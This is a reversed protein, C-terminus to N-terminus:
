GGLPTLKTTVKQTLPVSMGAAPIEVTSQQSMTTHGGLFVGDQGVFSTGSMTGSGKMAVETGNSMGKGEVTLKGEQTVTWAKAGNVTTDGTVTHTIVAKTTGDIGNNSFPTTTTDTWTLGSKVAASPFVTLFGKFGTALQKGTALTTDAAALGSARGLPSISGVVRQGTLQMRQEELRQRVAPLQPNGPADAAIRVSDVRYTVPMAGNAPAGLTMTIFQTTNVTVDMSMGGVQQSSAITQELQYQRTGPAYAFSQAHAGAAPAAALAVALATALTKSM